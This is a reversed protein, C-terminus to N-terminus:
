SKGELSNLDSNIKNITKDILDIKDGPVSMRLKFIDALSPLAMIKSVPVGKSVVKTSNEYFSLIGTLLKFQKEPSSYTDIPDYANQQLFGERLMRAVEMVLKENEPLSESGVLRIVEKLDDERKLVDMAKITCQRWQGNTVTNWWSEVYDTYESYSTLWNIAPYHRMSALSSDLA